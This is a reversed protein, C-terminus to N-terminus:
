VEQAPHWEQRPQEAFNARDYLVFVEPKIQYLHHPNKGNVIDEGLYSNGYREQYAEILQRIENPDSVERAIGQFQVGRVKDKPTQAQVITGAVHPNQALEQSHRADPLSIWYLNHLNDVAFYVTCCWPQTDSCTAIQMMQAGDLYSIVLDAVRAMTQEKKKLQVIFSIIPKDVL